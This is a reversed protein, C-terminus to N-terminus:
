FFEWDILASLKTLEHHTDVLNELRYRILDDTPLDPPRQFRSKTKRFRWSRIRM